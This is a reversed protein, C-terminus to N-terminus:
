VSLLGCYCSHRLPVEWGTDLDSKMSIHNNFVRTDPGVRGSAIMQEFQERKTSVVLDGDRYVVTRWNLLGVGFDQELGRIFDVARDLSCGSARVQKEDAVIVVFHRHFVELAAKLQQGHAAWIAVFERGRSRIDEVERETLTRDAQYVWVRAEDNLEKFAGAYDAIGDALSTYERKSNDQM